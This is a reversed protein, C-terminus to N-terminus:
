SVVIPGHHYFPVRGHIYRRLLEHPHFKERIEEPHPHLTDNNQSKCGGSIFGTWNMGLVLFVMQRVNAEVPDDGARLFM